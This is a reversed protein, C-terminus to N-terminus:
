SLQNREVWDLYEPTVTGTVYVNGDVFLAAGTALRQHNQLQANVAVGGSDVLFSYYNSAASGPRLPSFGSDFREGVILYQSTNLNMYSSAFPDSANLGIGISDLKLRNQHNKVQPYQYQSFM